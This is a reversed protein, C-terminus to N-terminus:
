TTADQVNTIVFETIAYASLIIVLGITAQVILKKATGVKEENGQATMWMFGAYVMLIVFAIGLLGLFGFILRGTITEVDSVPTSGYAQKGVNEFNKQGLQASAFSPMLVMAGVALSLALSKIKM